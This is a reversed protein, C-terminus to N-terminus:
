MQPPVEIPQFLPSCPMFIGEDSGAWQTAQWFSDDNSGAWTAFHLPFSPGSCDLNPVGPSEM